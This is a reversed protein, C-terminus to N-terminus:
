RFPRQDQDSNPAAVPPVVPQAEAVRVCAALLILALLTARVVLGNRALGNRACIRLARLLPM